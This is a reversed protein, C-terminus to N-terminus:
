VGLQLKRVVSHGFRGALFVPAAKARLARHSRNQREKEHKKIQQQFLIEALQNMGFPNQANQQSNENNRGCKVMQPFTKAVLTQPKIKDIIDIQYVARFNNKGSFKHKLTKCYELRLDSVSILKNNNVFFSSINGLGSGIELVEGMTYPEVTEYMWANFKNAQSIVDLTTGGTKDTYVINNKLKQEM